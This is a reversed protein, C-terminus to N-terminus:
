SYQFQGSKIKDVFQAWDAQDLDLPPRSLDKSDRLLIRDGAAAIEVCATDACYTSRRWAKTGDHTESM